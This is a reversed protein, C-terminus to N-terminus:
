WRLQAVSVLAAFFYDNVIEEVQLIMGKLLHTIVMIM